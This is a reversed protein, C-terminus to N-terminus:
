KVTVRGDNEIFLSRDSPESAASYIEVSLTTTAPRSLNVRIPQDALAWFFISINPQTGWGFGLETTSGPALTRPGSLPPQEIGVAVTSRNVVQVTIRDGPTFQIEGSRCNVTCTQALTPQVGVMVAMLGVLCGIPLLSSLKLM